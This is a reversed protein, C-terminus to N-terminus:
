EVERKTDHILRDTDQIVDSTLGRLEHIKQHLENHLRTIEKKLYENKIVLINTNVNTEFDDAKGMLRNARYLVEDLDATIRNIKYRCEELEPLVGGLSNRKEVLQELARQENENQNM